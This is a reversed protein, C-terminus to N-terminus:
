VDDPSAKLFTSGNILSKLNSSPWTVSTEAATHWM